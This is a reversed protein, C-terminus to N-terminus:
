SAAPVLYTTAMLLYPGSFDVLRAREAEYALFGIDATHNNLREILERAGNSPTISFAVGARRALEIVIDVAPGTIEGTKSDVTAQVPNGGLFTARLTGTPALDAAMVPLCALAISLLSTSPRMRGNYARVALACSRPSCSTKM